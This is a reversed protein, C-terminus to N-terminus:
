QHWWELVRRARLTNWRSPKGVSEMDFFTKAAYKYENKWRGDPLRKSELLEIAETLRPDRPANARRMVDLARMFDYHWRYPYALATFRPHIIRNTKDSRFLKHQFMLEFARQEAQVLEARYKRAGSELYERVGELVNFTTNFSSHSVRVRRVRCNWGDDPLQQALVHAVIQEVRSDKVQFYVALELMMGVICLDMDALRPAFEKSGEKGLMGDLLIETGRRAAPTEPPLGLDRLQLLTYTSSIWKPSYLGNGWIGDKGQFSLL